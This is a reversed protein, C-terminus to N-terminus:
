SNKKRRFLGLGGLSLLLATCPEPVPTFRAYTRADGIYLPLNTEADSWVGDGGLGNSEWANLVALLGDGTTKWGVSLVTAFSTNPAGSAAAGAYNIGGALNLQAVIAVVAAEADESTTFDFDGPLAGYVNLAEIPGQFDVNYLVGDIDLNNIGIAREFSDPDRVVEAQATSAGLLLCVAVTIIILKHTKM